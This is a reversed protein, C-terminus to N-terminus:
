RVSLADQDAPDIDSSDTAGNGGNAGVEGAFGGANMDVAGGLPPVDVLADGIAAGVSVDTPPVSGGCSSSQRRKAVSATTTSPPSKQSSSSSSCVSGDHPTNPLHM